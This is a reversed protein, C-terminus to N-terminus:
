EKPEGGGEGELTHEKRDYRDKLEDLVTGEWLPVGDFYAARALMHAGLPATIFLFLAIVLARATVGVEGFHIMVALVIFGVGLTSGKTVTQMRTLFDPMRFIGVAALLAFLGGIVLFFATIWEAM